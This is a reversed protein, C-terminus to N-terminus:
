MSTAAWALPVASASPEPAATQVTAPTRLAIVPDTGPRLLSTERNGAFSIQHAQNPLAPAKPAPRTASRRVSGGSGGRTHARDCTEALKESRKREQQLSPLLLAKRPVAGSARIAASTAM